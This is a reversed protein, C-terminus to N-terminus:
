GICDRLQTNADNPVITTAGTAGAMMTPNMAM